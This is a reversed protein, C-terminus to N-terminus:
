KKTLAPVTPSAGKRTLGMLYGTPSAGKTQRTPPYLLRKPEAADIFTNGQIDGQLVRSV